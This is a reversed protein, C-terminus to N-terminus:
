YDGLNRIMNDLNKDDDWLPYCIDNREVNSIEGFNDFEIIFSKEGFRTDDDYDYRYWCTGDNSVRINKTLDYVGGNQDFISDRVYISTFDNRKEIMVYKKVKELEDTWVEFNNVGRIALEDLFEKENDILRLTEKIVEKVCHFETKELKEIIKSQKKSFLFDYNMIEGRQIIKVYINVNQLGLFRDGGRSAM